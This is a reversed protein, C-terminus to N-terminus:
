NKFVNEKNNMKRKSEKQQKKKIAHSIKRVESCNRRMEDVEAAPKSSKLPYVLWVSSIVWSWATLM